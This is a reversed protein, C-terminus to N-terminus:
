LASLCINQANKSKMRNIACNIIKGDIVDYSVYPLNLKQLWKAM